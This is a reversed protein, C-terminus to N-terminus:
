PDEEVRGYDFMHDKLRYPEGSNYEEVALEIQQVGGFIVRRDVRKSAKKLHTLQKKSIHAGAEMGKCVFLCLLYDDDDTKLFNFIRNFVGNDLHAKTDHISMIPPREGKLNDNADLFGILGLNVGAMDSINALLDLAQDSEFLGYGWAGM